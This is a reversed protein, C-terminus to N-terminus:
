RDVAALIDDVELGPILRAANEHYVKRLVDEPLDLGYMQWFAHYDRYYDFYDDTTELVRFYTNFEDRNYADKGM